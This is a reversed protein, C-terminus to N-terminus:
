DFCSGLEALVRYVSPAFKDVAHVYLIAPSSSHHALVFTMIILYLTLNTVAWGRILCDVARSKQCSADISFFTNGEWGSLAGLLM